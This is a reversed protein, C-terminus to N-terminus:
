RTLYKKSKKLFDKSELDNRQLSIMFIIYRKNSSTLYKKNKRLFDKKLINLATLKKYVLEKRYRYITSPNKRKTLDKKLFKKFNLFLGM